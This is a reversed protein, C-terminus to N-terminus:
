PTEWLPWACGYYGERSSRDDLRHNQVNRVIKDIIQILVLQNQWDVRFSGGCQQFVLVIISAQRPVIGVPGTTATVIFTSVLVVVAVVVVVAM